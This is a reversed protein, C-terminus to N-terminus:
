ETADLQETEANPAEPSEVVAESTENKENTIKEKSAELLTKSLTDKKPLSDKIPTSSGEPAESEATQVLLVDKILTEATSSTTKPLDVIFPYSGSEDINEKDEVQPTLGSTNAIVAAAAESLRHATEPMISEWMLFIGITIWFALALVLVFKSIEFFIFSIPGVTLKIIVLRLFCLVKEIGCAMVSLM